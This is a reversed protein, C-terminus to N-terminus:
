KIPLQLQLSGLPIWTYGSVVRNRKEIVPDKAALRYPDHLFTFDSGTQRHTFVNLALQCLLRPLTISHFISNQHLRMVDAKLM